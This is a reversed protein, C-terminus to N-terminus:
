TQIACSDGLSSSRKEDMIVPVHRKKRTRSEKSMVREAALKLRLQHMWKAVEEAAMGERWRREYKGGLQQALWQLDEPCFTLLDQESRIAVDDHRYIDEMLPSGLRDEMWDVDRRIAEIAPAILSSHLRVKGGRLERMKRILARNEGIVQPGVGYGPGYKRYAYLFGLAKLSLGENARISGSADFRIGLRRCFDQVVDGNVFNVPDFKWLRVRDKGFVRDLKRLHWYKPCTTELRDFCKMGGKVRQQFASEMFGKPSRIYGVAWVDHTRKLLYGYLDELEPSAMNSAREGSLIAARDNASQLEKELRLFM